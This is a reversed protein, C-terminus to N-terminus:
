MNLRVDIGVRARPNVLLGILMIVLAIVLGADMYQGWRLNYTWLILSGYFAVNLMIFTVVIFIIRM